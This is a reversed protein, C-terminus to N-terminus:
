FNYHRVFTLYEEVTTLQSIKHKDAKRTKSSPRRNKVKNILESLNPFYRRIIRLKKVELFAPPHILKPKRILEKNSAKRKSILHKTVNISLIGTEVLRGYVNPTNQHHVYIIASTKNKYEKLIEILSETTLPNDNNSRHKSFSNNIVDHWITFNKEIMCKPSNSLLYQVTKQRNNANLNFSLGPVAKFTDDLRKQLTLPLTNVSHHLSSAAIIFVM